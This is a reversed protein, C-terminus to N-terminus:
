GELVLFRGDPIAFVESQALLEDDSLGIVDMGMEDLVDRVEILNDCVAALCDALFDAAEEETEAVRKPFLQDQHELFYNLIAEDYEEM